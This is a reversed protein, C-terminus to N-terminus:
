TILGMDQTVLLFQIWFFWVQAAFNCTLTGPVKRLNWIFSSVNLNWLDFIYAREPSEKAIVHVAM